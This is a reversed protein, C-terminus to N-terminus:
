CFRPPMLSVLAELIHPVVRQDQDALMARLRPLGITPDLSGLLDALAARVTWNPDPDLGALVAVFQDRDFAALSRLVAIRVNPNPDAVSDLLLDVAATAHVSGLAGLAEVRLQPDLDKKAVLALLPPASRPDGIRALARIAEIQVAREPASVLAALAPV